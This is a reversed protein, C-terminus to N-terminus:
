GKIIQGRFVQRILTVRPSETNKEKEDKPAETRTDVSFAPLGSTKGAQRLTEAENKVVAAEYSSNFVLLLSHDSWEWGRAKELAAALALNGKRVEGILLTKKEEPSYEAEPISTGIDIPVACAPEEPSEPESVPEPEPEKKGGKKFSSFFREAEQDGTNGPNTSLSGPPKLEPIKKKVEGVPAQWGGGQLEDRLMSIRELIDSS